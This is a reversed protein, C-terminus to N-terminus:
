RCSAGSRSRILTETMAAHVALGRDMAVEIRLGLATFSTEMAMVLARQAALLFTVRRGTLHETGM